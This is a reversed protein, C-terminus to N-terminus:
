ASPLTEKTAPYSDTRWRGSAIYRVMVNATAVVPVAFLAGAIGGIFSGAAVALVVALPHVKVATGIVLPQLVHGELQQVLLVIGLMLVAPFFGLYVLAVVSAIAGTVVAGVIPIFSGLFVAIAIPIVLPFGGFVLGLIWAGLGIGTADVAAVFIQVRVFTTLTSWGARGSGDVASRARKPFLNVIWAWIGKGDILIFLTAFLTLLIGAFVHGTTSSVSLAGSIVTDSQIADIVSAIWADLEANSIAFPSAALWARFDEYAAISRNQLDPFGERVQWVVVVILGAVAALTGLLAITVALWKPWRHRQLWQVFPVLLAAILVSIMFPIAIYRVQIFLFVFVALAGLVLLIRWSYAAAIKLAPPVTEDPDFPAADVKARNVAM